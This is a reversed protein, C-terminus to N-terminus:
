KRGKLFARAGSLWRQREAEVPGGYAARLLAIGATGAWASGGHALVFAIWHDGCLSAVADRGYRAVAYRRLLHELSRALAQDDVPTAELKDLERLASRRIRVAPRSQWYALGALAVTLLLALGWWGPALPWWGPPPPAHAPALQALWAPSSPPSM